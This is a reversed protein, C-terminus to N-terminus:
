PLAYIGVPPSKVKATFLGALAKEEHFLDASKTLIWLRRDYDPHFLIIRKFVFIKKHKQMKEAKRLGKFWM